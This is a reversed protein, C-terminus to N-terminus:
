VSVSSWVPVTYVRVPLRSAKALWTPCSTENLPWGAVADLVDPVFVPAFPFTVLGSVFVAFGVPAVAGGLLVGDGEFAVLFANWTLLMLSM